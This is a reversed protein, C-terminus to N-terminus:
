LLTYTTQSHTTIRHQAINDTSADIIAAAALRDTSLRLETHCTARTTPLCGGMHHPTLKLRV